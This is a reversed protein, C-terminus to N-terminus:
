LLFHPVYESCTEVMSLHDIDKPEMSLTVSVWRCCVTLADLGNREKMITM